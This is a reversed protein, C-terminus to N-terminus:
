GKPYPFTGPQSREPLLGEEVMQKVADPNYMAEPTGSRHMCDCDGKCGRAEHAEWGQEGKDAAARCPVCIM